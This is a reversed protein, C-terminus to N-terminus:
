FSPDFNSSTMISTFCFHMENCISLNCRRGGEWALELPFHLIGHIKSGRLKGMMHKSLICNFPPIQMKFEKMFAPSFLAKEKTKCTLILLFILIIEEAMNDLCCQLHNWYATLVILISIFAWCGSGCFWWSYRKLGGDLYEHELCAELTLM